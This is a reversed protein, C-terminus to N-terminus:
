EEFLNDIKKHGRPTFDDDYKGYDAKAIKLNKEHFLAEFPKWSVTADAIVRLNLYTTAKVAFYALLVKTRNWQYKGDNVSAIGAEVAKNILKMAKTTSLEEPIEPAKHQPTSRQRAPLAKIYQEALETSGIYYEVDTILRRRKLYVGCEEQLRLLDIGYTLLLADLRNAFHSATDHLVSMCNEVTGTQWCAGNENGSYKITLEFYRRSIYKHREILQRHRSVWEDDKFLSIQQEEQAILAAPDYKDAFGKFPTLLSFAYRERATPTRQEDVNDGIEEFLPSPNGDYLVTRDFGEFQEKIRKPLEVDYRRQWEPPLPENESHYLWLSYTQDMWGMCLSALRGFAGLFQKELTKDM